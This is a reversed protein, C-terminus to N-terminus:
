LLLPFLLLLLSTHKSLSTVSFSMQIFHSSFLATLFRLMCLVSLLSVQKQFYLTDLALITVHGTTKMRQIYTKICGCIM